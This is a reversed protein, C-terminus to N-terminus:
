EGSKFVCHTYRFEKDQEFSWQDNSKFHINFAHKLGGNVAAKQSVINEAECMWVLNPYTKTYQKIVESAIGKGRHEPVIFITGLRYWIGTDYKLQFGRYERDAIERPFAM